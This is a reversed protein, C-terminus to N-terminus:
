EFVEMMKLFTQFESRVTANASVVAMGKGPEGYVIKTDDPAYLICPILALDEEGEVCIVDTDGAILANKIVNSLETTIIGAPNNVNKKRLKQKDVFEAFEDMKHRETFGDYISLVPTIGIKRMTLSVVDGVTIVRKDRYTTIDKRNVIPGSYKKFIDRKDAPLKWGGSM